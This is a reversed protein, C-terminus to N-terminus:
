GRLSRTIKAPKRGQGSRFDLDKLGKRGGPRLDKKFAMGFIKRIEELFGKRPESKLGGGKLSGHGSARPYGKPYGRIHMLLAPGNRIEKGLPDMGRVLDQDKKGHGSV